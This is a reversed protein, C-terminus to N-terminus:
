TGSPSVEWAVRDYWEGKDDLMGINCPYVRQGFEDLYLGVRICQMELLGPRVDVEADSGMDSDQLMAGCAEEAEAAELLEIKVQVKAAQEEAAVKATQAGGNLEM